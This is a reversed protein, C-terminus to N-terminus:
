KTQNEKVNYDKLVVEYIPKNLKMMEAKMNKSGPSDGSWILLLCDAYEAMERNRIPGAAKGHTDWNAPFKRVPIEHHSAFHEGEYDVGSAGGSVIESIDSISHLQICNMLFSYNPHITRSGAILLRM